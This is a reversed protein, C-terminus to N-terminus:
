PVSPCCTKAKSLMRQEQIAALFDAPLDATCCQKEQQQVPVPGQTVARSPCDRGLQISLGVVRGTPVTGTEVDGKVASLDIIQETIKRAHM